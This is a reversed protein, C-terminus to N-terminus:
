QRAQRDAGLAVARALAGFWVAYTKGAGTTAHLLGSEGAAMAAWVERQFDFPAWGREAFWREAFSFATPGTFSM